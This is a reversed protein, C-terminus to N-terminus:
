IHVRRVNYISEKHPIRMKKFSVMFDKLTILVDLEIKKGVAELIV